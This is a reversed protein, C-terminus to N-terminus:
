PMKSSYRKALSHGLPTVLDSVQWCLPPSAAKLLLVVKQPKTPRGPEIEFQYAMTVKTRGPGTAMTSFKANGAIEGDQAGLWPDYDLHCIGEAAACRYYNQLARYLSPTVYSRLAPTEEYYFSRHETFFMQAFEVPDAVECGSAASALMPLSLLFSMIFRM